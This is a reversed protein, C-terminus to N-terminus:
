KVKGRMELIEKKIEKLEKKIEQMEKTPTVENIKEQVKKVSFNKILIPILVTTIFGAVLPAVFNILEKFEEM